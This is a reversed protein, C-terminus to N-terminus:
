KAGWGKWRYVYGLGVVFEGKLDKAPTLGGNTVLNLKDGASIKLGSGDPAVLLNGFAAYGGGARELGKAAWGVVMPALNCSAAAHVFGSHADGGGGIELFACAPPPVGAATWPAPWKSSGIAPNYIVAADIVGGDFAMHRTPAYLVQASTQAHAWDNWIFCLATHCDKSTAPAHAQIAAQVQQAQAQPAAADPVPATQAFSPVALAVLAAVLLAKM